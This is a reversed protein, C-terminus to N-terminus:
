ASFNAFGKSLYEMQDALINRNNLALYEFKNPKYPIALLNMGAQEPTRNGKQNNCAKCATVCNTWTDKGGSAKPVVHERTLSTKGYQEGCYLCTHKDRAFLATNTLRPVKHANEHLQGDVAIVPAIDLTTQLGTLRSTGGHLTVKISGMTWLIMDKAYLCAAEQMGIWEMPFGSKDLRLVQANLPSYM